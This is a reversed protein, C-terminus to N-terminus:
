GREKPRITQKSTARRAEKEFGGREAQLMSLLAAKKQPSPTRGYGAILRDTDTETSKSGPASSPAPKKM